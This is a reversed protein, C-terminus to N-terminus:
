NPPDVVPPKRVRGTTGTPCSNKACSNLLGDVCDNGVAVVQNNADVCDLIQIKYQNGTPPDALSNSQIVIFGLLLVISLAFFQKKKTLKTNM